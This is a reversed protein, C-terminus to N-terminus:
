EEPDNGAGSRPLIGLDRLRSQNLVQRTRVMYEVGLTAPPVKDELIELAMRVVQRSMQKHDPFAAYACLGIGPGALEEVGCLFPVGAQEAAPRWGSSFNKQNILKNDLQVWVAEAKHQRVAAELLPGPAFAGKQKEVDIAILEVGIRQLQRRANNILGSFVSGRYLTVIRDTKHNTSQRFGTVISFASVEYAIGCINRNGQLGSALNLAMAAIGRVPRSGAKKNYAKAFAISKNDLLVLLDPKIRSVPRSFDAYVSDRDIALFEISHSAGGAVLEVAINQKVQQFPERSSGAILIRGAEAPVSACLLLFLLLHKLTVNM